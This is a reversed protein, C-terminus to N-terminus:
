SRRGASASSRSRSRRQGARALDARMVALAISARHSLGHGGSTIEGVIEDGKWVTSMYPADARRHRHDDAALAQGSGGRAARGASGQRPLGTKDLRVFRDLGAKLCARLRHLPRGELGSLGERHAHQGARVHRLAQARRQDARRLDRCTQAATAHIEWGLEGTFSVRILLPNKGAITANQHTLWGQTLTLTPSRRSTLARASRGPSSSPEWTKPATPSPLGRGEPLHRELWSSRAVTRDRRHDAHLRRRCVPHDVDRDGHPRTTPSTSCTRDPRAQAPM